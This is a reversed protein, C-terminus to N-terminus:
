CRYWRPIRVTSGETAITIWQRCSSITTFWRLCKNYCRTRFKNIYYQPVSVLKKLQIEAGVKKSFNRRWSSRYEGCNYKRHELDLDDFNTVKVVERPDDGTGDNALTGINITQVAM